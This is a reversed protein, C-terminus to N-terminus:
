VDNIRVFGEARLVWGDSSGRLHSFIKIQGRTPNYQTWIRVDGDQPVFLAEHIKMETIEIM